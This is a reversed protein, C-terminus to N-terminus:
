QMKVIKRQTIDVGDKSIIRMLYVGNAKTSINLQMTTEVAPISTLLQGLYNYLEVVQGKSLGSVTFYGNNPNPFAV